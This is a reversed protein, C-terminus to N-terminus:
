FHQISCTAHLVLNHHVPCLIRLRCNDCTGRCHERSFAEGFHALIMVRRCDVESQCYQAGCSCGRSFPPMVFTLRNAPDGAANASRVKVMQDLNEMQVHMSDRTASEQIMHQLTARDGLSFLLICRAPLGDRGARGSEQTPGIIANEGSCCPSASSTCPCRVQYYHTISKPMSHHIVFRVDPKNIGMGFAVTACIVQCKNQSWNEHHLRKVEPSEIGAHYYTSM